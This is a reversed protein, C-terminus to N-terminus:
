QALTIDELHEAAREMICAVKRPSINLIRGVEVNTPSLRKALKSLESLASNWKEEHFKKKKANKEKKYGSEQRIEYKERHMYTRGIRSELMMCRDMKESISNRGRQILDQLKKENMDMLVSIRKILADSINFCSKIALILCAQKLLAERNISLKGTNRVKFVNSYNLNKKALYELEGMTMKSDDSNLELMYEADRTIYNEEIESEMIQFDIFFRQKEREEYSKKMWWKLSIKICGYFYTTFVCREPNFNRIIKELRTSIYLIFDSFFDEDIKSLGFNKRHNFVFELLRNSAEHLDIKHCSYEDWISNIDIM